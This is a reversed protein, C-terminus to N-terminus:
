YTDANRTGGSVLYLLAMRLAVGNTVQDLIISYPGEVVEYDIEVGRNVPGPHMIIFDDRANKVRKKTLGYVKAYERETSFSFNKQREKQIRLMMIVDTNCIAEDVSYSVSAGLSEIEKPIMTPPGAILVNAGMKTFGIINSRAVRSNSIDGVISINLGSIKGKKERITMLDLLTQTPHANIGDGANIVSAKLISALM